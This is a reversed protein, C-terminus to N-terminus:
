LLIEIKYWFSEQEERERKSREEREIGRNKEWAKRRERELKVREGRELEGKENDREERFCRYHGHNHTIM